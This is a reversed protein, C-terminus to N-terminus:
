QCGASGCVLGADDTAFVGHDMPDRLAGITELSRERHAYHSALALRSSM